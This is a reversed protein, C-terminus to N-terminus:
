KTLGSQIPRNHSLYNLLLRLEDQRIDSFLVLVGSYILVACLITASLPLSFWFVLIMLFVAVATSSVVIRIGVNQWVFFKKLQFGLLGILLLEALLTAVAAGQLGFRSILWYHLIGGVCAVLFQSRTVAEQRDSAILFVRMICRLFVVPVLWALWRLIVISEVFELGYLLEILRPAILWIGGAMPLGLVIAVNLTVRYLEQFEELSSVYLRSALPLIALGAFIPMFLLVVIFRYAVNFVGTASVTLMFGVFLLAVRSSFLDLLSYLAYPFAERLVQRVGATRVSIRLAGCRRLILHYGLAVHLLTMVPLSSVALLLSGGLYVIVMGTLATTIRLSVEFLSTIHMDEWAVFVAGFGEVLTLFIQYAGIVIILLKMEDPFPYLATMGLLLSIVMGSLLLRVALLRGYYTTVQDRYRSLNKISLTQIGFDAFVSLVGTLAMAFSYQGIGEQGYTRALVLFFLFTCGDALLKGITLYGFNRFIRAGAGVDNNADENM